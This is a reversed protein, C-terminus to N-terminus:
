IIWKHWDYIFRWKQKVLRGIWCNWFHINLISQIM